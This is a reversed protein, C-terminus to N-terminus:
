SPTDQGDKAARPRQRQARTKEAQLCHPSSQLQPQHTAWQLPEEQQQARAGSVHAHTGQLMCFRCLGPISGVDGANDPAIKVVPGPFDQHKRKTLNLGQKGAPYTRPFATDEKPHGMQFCGTDDARMQSTLGWNFTSDPMHEMDNRNGRPIHHWRCLGHPSWTFRKSRLLNVCACVCVHSEADIYRSWGINVVICAVHHSKCLCCKWKM